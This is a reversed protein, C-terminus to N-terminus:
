SVRSPKPCGLEKLLDDIVDKDKDKGTKAFVTIVTTGALYIGGYRDVSDGDYSSTLEADITIYSKTIKVKGEIGDHSKYFGYRAAYYDFNYKAAEEDEYETCSVTYKDYDEGEYSIISEVSDDYSDESEDIEDKDCDLVDKITAKFDKASMEKVGGCATMGFVMTAVLLVAVIGKFKKM